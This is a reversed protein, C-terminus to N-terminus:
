CRKLGALTEVMKAAIIKKVIRIKEQIKNKPFYFFIGIDEILTEVRSDEERRTERKSLEKLHITSYGSFLILVSCFLANHIPLPGPSCMISILLATLGEEKSM